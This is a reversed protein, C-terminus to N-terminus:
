HEVQQTNDRQVVGLPSDHTDSWRGKQICWNKIKKTSKNDWKFSLENTQQAVSAVNKSILLKLHVDKMKGLGELLWQLKFRSLACKIKAKTVSNVCINEQLLKLTKKNLYMYTVAHM